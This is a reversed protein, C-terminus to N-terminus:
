TSANYSLEEGTLAFYLNQLQHLYEVEIIEDECNRGECSYRYEIFYEGGNRALAFSNFRYTKYKKDGEFHYETGFGYEFGCQELIEPTLPIPEIWNEMKSNYLKGEITKFAIRYKSSPANPEYKIGDVIYLEDLYFIYNGIRLETSQVM